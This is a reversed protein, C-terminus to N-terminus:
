TTALHMLRFFVFGANPFITPKKINEAFGRGGGEFGRGNRSAYGARAARTLCPSVDTTVGGKGSDKACKSVQDINFNHRGSSGAGM